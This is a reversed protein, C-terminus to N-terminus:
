GGGSKGITGLIENRHLDFSVNELAPVKEGHELPYTKSLNVVKVIADRGIM